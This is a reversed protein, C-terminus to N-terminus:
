EGNNKEITKLKWGTLNRAKNIKNLSNDIDSHIIALFLMDVVLLSVDRSSIAAIRSLGEEAVVPFIIQSISALPNQNDQTITIVTIKLLRAQKALLLTEATLGSYSIAIFLDNETSSALTALTIHYDSNCIVTYGLKILKMFLDQAVLQSVGSGHIFIKPAKKILATAQKFTDVSNLSQTLRIAKMTDNVLHSYIDELSDHLSISGQTPEIQNSSDSLLIKFYSFGKPELKKILKAVASQSVQAQKAIQEASSIKAWNIDNLIITAIKQEAKNGHEKITTLKAIIKM